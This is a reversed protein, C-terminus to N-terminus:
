PEIRARRFRMHQYGSVLATALLVLHGVNEAVEELPIHLRAEDPLIGRFIRRAILQSFIYVAFSSLLLPRLPGRNFPVSLRERWYWAWLSIAALAVYIGHHTGAFHIERCLLAVALM